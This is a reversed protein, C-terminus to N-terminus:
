KVSNATKSFQMEFLRRYYGNRELLQDHAGREIIRGEELVVILDANLITSLRHAIVLTTRGLMLNVLAKQVMLESESDLASTAEDLILIAPDKMIARAISIRQKQGGSLRLGREGISTDYGKHTNIIFEHAYSAKAARIVSDMSADLNGYAINNRITDHFLFIEQTVIGIQRRLSKLTAERIDVGDLLVAGATVEFFRPILNSLTTKGAGSTGVFAVIRGKEVRLNIEKLVAVGPEYEFSVNVLEIGREMPGLEIAGAKDVILPPTDILDFIRKAAALAQQTKNYVRSLKSVPTYLMVLATLFSFFSGVTTQGDIVQRGGYWIIAAIGFAGMFELLPSSLENIRIMKKLSEFYDSNSKEFRAIEYEEMGFAQVVRIGTFTELLTANLTAIREQAEKSVSRVFRGLKGILGASMPIIFITVIALKWDQYFVVALLAVLTLSERIIDYVVISVSDQIVQVDNTVRSMLRGSHHSSYFKLSLTQLHRFIHNRIDRVAQQGIIQMLSSAFYRCVGRILYIIVVGVPLLKLMRVDHNLFVEDLIPEIILAAMGTSGSVFIMFVSALIFKSKYPALYTLLRKYLNM